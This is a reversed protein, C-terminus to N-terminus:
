TVYKFKFGKHIVRKGKLCSNIHSVSLNLTNACETQIEWNLIQGNPSISIFPKSKKSLTMRLKSERSMVIHLKKRSESLKKHSEPHRTRNRSYEGIIKKSDETHRYGTSGEGGDTLNYGFSRTDYDSIMQKEFNLAEEIKIFRDLIKVNINEEGYKRIAKHVLSTKKQNKALLKHQKMRRPFDSSVGIYRKFNPFTMM